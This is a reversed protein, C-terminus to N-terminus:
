KVIPRRLYITEIILFLMVALSIYTFQVLIPHNFLQKIFMDFINVSILLIIIVYVKNLENIKIVFGVLTSLMTIFAISIFTELIGYVEMRTIAYSIMIFVFYTICNLLYIILLRSLFYQYKGVNLSYIAQMYERFHIGITLPLLLMIEKLGFNILMSYILSFNVLELSYYLGIVLVMLIIFFFGQEVFVQNRFFHITELKSQLLFKSNYDLQKPTYKPSLTGADKQMFCNNLFKLSIKVFLLSVSIGLLIIVIFHLLSTGGILVEVPNIIM